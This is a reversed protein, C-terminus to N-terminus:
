EYFRLNNRINTMRKLNYGNRGGSRRYIITKYKKGDAAPIKLQRCFTSLEIGSAQKERLKMRYWYDRPKESDTLAAIIDVVSFWWENKYIKKRIEKNRFIAIRTQNKKM